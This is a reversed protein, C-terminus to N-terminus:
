TWHQNEDQPNVRHTKSGIIRERRKLYKKKYSFRVFINFLTIWIMRGFSIPQPSVFTIFRVYFFNDFSGQGSIFRKTYQHINLNNWNGTMKAYIDGSDSEM